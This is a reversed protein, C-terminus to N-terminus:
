RSGVERGDLVADRLSQLRARVSRDIVKDGVKLVIGGVIAPDVRADLVFEEGTMVCLRKQVLRRTEADLPIATVIEAFRVERYEDVLRSYELAIDGLMSLNGHRALLSAFDIVEPLVDDYHGVASAEGTDPGGDELSMCYRMLDDQPVAALANLDNRCKELQGAGTALEFARRAYFGTLRLISVDTM